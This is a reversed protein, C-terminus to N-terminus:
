LSARSKSWALCRWYNAFDLQILPPRQTFIDTFPQSNIPYLRTILNNPQLRGAQEASGSGPKRGAWGRGDGGQSSTPFDPLSAAGIGAAVAGGEGGFSDFAGQTSPRAGAELWELVPSRATPFCGDSEGGPEM